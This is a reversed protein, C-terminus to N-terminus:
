YYLEYCPSLKFGTRAFSFMAFTPFETGLVLGDLKFFMLLKFYSFWSKLEFIVVWFADVDDVRGACWYLM